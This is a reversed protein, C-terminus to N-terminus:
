DEINKDLCFPYWGIQMELEESDLTLTYRYGNNLNITEIYCMLTLDDENDLHYYKKCWKGNKTPVDKTLDINFMQILDEDTMQCQTIIEKLNCYTINREIYSKMHEQIKNLFDEFTCTM